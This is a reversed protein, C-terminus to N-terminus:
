VIKKMWRALAAISPGLGYQEGIEHRGWGGVADQIEKSAGVERLRDRMAHRFSHAGKPIGMTGFWKVITASASNGKCRGDHAYRPFAYKQDRSALALVRRAAWLAEGVLPVHRRSARAKVGRSENPAITVYPPTHNVMLDSLQLGAIEQLRAGTDAILAVIHAVDDDRNRCARVITVREDRKVPSRKVADKGLKPVKVSSFVNPIGLERERIATNFVTRIVGIRRRVTTTRQGEKLLADRYENAHLRRYEQVPLDGVDKFLRKFVLDMDRRFRPDTGRDHQSLYLELADSALFKTEGHLQRLAEMKVPSLYNEPQAHRYIDEDGDAYAERDPEIETERFLDIWIDLEDDMDARQRDGPELGHRNLLAMAADRVEREGRNPDGRYAAWLSEDAKALKAAERAAAALSTRGLPRIIKSQGRYHHAVDKPIRRQYYHVGNRSFVHKAMVTFVRGRYIIAM